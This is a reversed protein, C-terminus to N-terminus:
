QGLTRRVRMAWARAAEKYALGTLDGELITLGDRLLDDHGSSRAVVYQLIGRQELQRTEYTVVADLTAVSNDIVAQETPTFHGGWGSFCARADADTLRRFAGEVAMRMPLDSGPPLVGVRSTPAFPGIKCTWVNM